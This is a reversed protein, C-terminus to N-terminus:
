WDIFGFKKTSFDLLFFHCVFFIRSFLGYVSLTLPHFMNYAFKAQIDVCFPKFTLKGSLVFPHKECSCVGRVKM